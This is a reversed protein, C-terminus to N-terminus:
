NDQLEDIVPAEPRESRRPDPFHQHEEVFEGEISANRYIKGVIRLFQEQWTVQLLIPNHGGFTERSSRWLQPDSLAMSEDLAYLHVARRRLKENDIKSISGLAVYRLDNFQSVYVQLEPDLKPPAEGSEVLAFREQKAEFLVRAARSFSTLSIELARTAELQARQYDRQRDFERQEERDERQRTWENQQDTRANAQAHVQLGMVHRQDDRRWEAEKNWQDQQLRTAHKQSDRQLYLNLAGIILSGLVAGVVAGWFGQEM